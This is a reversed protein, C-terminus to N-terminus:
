GPRRGIGLLATFQVDVPETGFEAELRATVRRSFDAFKEEGLRRRMLVVPAGGRTFSRWVDGIPMTGTPVVHEHVEIERFGAAAFEARVEAETGLPPPPAEGGKADPQEARMAAFLAKFIPVRDSPPWSAVLARAGPRLVRCLERLGAARDPFFILGFMSYAADFSADPFPLAQGDGVQPEVNSIHAAQARARLEALMAPAFDLAVVRRATRAALLSLSGPGAAVDLVDGAAPALRLAEAAFAEFSRLNEAVYGSAV